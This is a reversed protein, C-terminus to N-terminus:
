SAAARAPREIGSSTLTTPNSSSGFDCSILGGSVVIWNGSRSAAAAATFRIASAMLPMGIGLSRRSTGERKTTLPDVLADYCRATLRNCAGDVPHVKV